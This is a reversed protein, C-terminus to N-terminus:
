LMREGPLVLSRGPMKTYIPYLNRSIKRNRWLRDSPTSSFYFPPKGKGNWKKENYKCM